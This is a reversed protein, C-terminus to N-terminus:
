VSWDVERPKIGLEKELLPKIKKNYCEKCVDYVEGHDGYSDGYNYSNTLMGIVPKDEDPELDNCAVSRGTFENYIYADIYRGCIDCYIEEQYQEEIIEKKQIKIKKTGM